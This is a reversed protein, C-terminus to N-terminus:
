CSFILRPCMSGMRAACYIQFADLAKLELNMVDVDDVSMSVITFKGPQIMQLTSLDFTVTQGMAGFFEVFRQDQEAAWSSCCAVLSMLLVPLSLKM